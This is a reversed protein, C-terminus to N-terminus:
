YGTSSMIVSFVSVTGAIMYERESNLTFIGKPIEQGRATVSLVNVSKIFDSSARIQSEIDAYSLTGGITFSNLYRRLFISAQNELASVAASSLGQPLVINVALSIPVREAIRINLKIGVPKRPSLNDLVNQVFSPSITQTEPVVIVDCSGMGYSSERIRVDRVGPLALANLRLSEATGYSKEKISFSIRRRYSDDSEMGPMAFIEKTNTCFVISGEVSTFNHKTLTNKAATFDQGTFSAAIRGYARTTGAIITVSDQLKYQYQKSSFETVDNYVLTDKPIVIDSSSPSSIFFEINYSMRDQEIEPSVIKRRVGYLEGILDLSRGSATSISTQNVSFKLAEYLDGMEVAVAEAFARAISGPYTATIGANKELSLLMKGLIETKSKSYVIPM